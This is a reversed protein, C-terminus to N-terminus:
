GHSPQHGLGVAKSVKSRTKVHTWEGEMDPESNQSQSIEIIPDKGDKNLSNEAEKADTGKGGDSPKSVDSSVRKPVEPIRTESVSPQPAKKFVNGSDKCTNSASAVEDHLPAKGKLKARILEIGHVLSELQKPTLAELTQLDEDDLASLDFLQPKKGDKKSSSPPDAHKPSPSKPPRGRKRAM